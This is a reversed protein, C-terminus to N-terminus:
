RGRAGDVRRGQGDVARPQPSAGAAGRCQRGGGTWRRGSRRRCGTMAAAADWCGRMRLEVDVGGGGGPLAAIGRGDHRAAWEMAVSWGGGGGPSAATGSAGGGGGSLTTAGGGDRRGSWRWAGGAVVARHRPRAAREVAVARCRPLAGAM